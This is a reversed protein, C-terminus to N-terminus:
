QCYFFQDGSTTPKGTEIQRDKPLIEIANEIRRRLWPTPVPGPQESAGDASCWRSACEPHRRQGEPESHFAAVIKDTQATVGVTPDPWIGVRKTQESEVTTDSPEGDIGVPRLDRVTM